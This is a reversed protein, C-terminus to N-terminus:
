TVKNAYGVHMKEAFLLTQVFGCSGESPRATGTSNCDPRNLHLGPERERPNSSPLSTVLKLIELRNTRPTGPTTRGDRLARQRKPFFVGLGYVPRSKFMTRSPGHRKAHGPVPRMNGRRMGDRVRTARLLQRVRRPGAKSSWAMVPGYLASIYRTIIASLIVWSKVCLHHFLNYFIVHL